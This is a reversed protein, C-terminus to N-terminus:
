TEQEGVPEGQSTALFGILSPTSLRLYLPKEHRLIGVVDDFQSMRYRLYLVENQTVLNVPLPAGDAHFSLKGVHTMGNYCDIMPVESGGTVYHIKYQDFAKEYVAM